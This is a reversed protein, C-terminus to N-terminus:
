VSVELLLIFSVLTWLLVLSYGQIRSSTGRNRLTHVPQPYGFVQLPFYCKRTHNATISDGLRAPVSEWLVIVNKVITM